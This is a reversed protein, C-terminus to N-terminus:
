IEKFYIYCKSPLAVGKKRNIRDVQLWVVKHNPLNNIKDHLSASFGSKISEHYDTTEYIESKAIDILSFDKLTSHKTMDKYGAKTFDNLIKQTDKQKLIENLQQVQM